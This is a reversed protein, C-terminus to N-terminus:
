NLQASAKRPRRATLDDLRRDVDALEKRTQNELQTRNRSEANLEAHFATILEKVLDPHLSYDM